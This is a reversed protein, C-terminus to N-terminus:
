VTRMEIWPVQGTKGLPEGGVFIVQDGAEVKGEKKLWALVQMDWKEQNKWTFVCPTVGWSLNTQRAVQANETCAYIPMPPRHRSLLRAAEGTETLCVIAKARIAHSLITAINTMAAEPEEPNLRLHPPVDDLTSMEVERLVSAMTQVAELPFAGSASEGSLMTADTHDIAANAVDSIEARTARPQRIMSDLMQTAVIVPKAAELCRRILDKQVLPVKEAPIEIGLDGRAVLIGDTEEIIEDLVTLAEPKEIKAIIHIGAGKKGLRKRLERIDEPSRVFSLAVFDVGQEIGFALDEKDKETMAPISTKTDPLNLGKHSFLTGGFEMECLVDQGKIRKVKAELLGDDFLLRQGVKVDQALSPYSVSIAHPLRTKGSTFTVESGTPLIVGEKPLEGVRIKPGQLDQLITLPEGTKKAVRRIKQILEAHNEHTGHSFNLRCVNMGARVMAELQKEESSAPGITCVIKTSRKTGSFPKHSKM